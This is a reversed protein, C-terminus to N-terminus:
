YKGKQEERVAIDRESLTCSGARDDSITVKRGGQLGSQCEREETGSTYGRRRIIGRGADECIHLVYVDRRIDSHGGGDSRRIPFIRAGPSFSLITTSLNRLFFNRNM